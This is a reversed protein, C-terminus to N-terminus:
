VDTHAYSKDKQQNSISFETKVAIAISSTELYFHPLLTAM